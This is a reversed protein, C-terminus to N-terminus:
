NEEDTRDPHRGQAGAQTSLDPNGESRFDVSQVDHGGKTIKYAIAGETSVWFHIHLGGRTIIKRLLTRGSREEAVIDVVGDRLLAAVMEPTCLAEDPMGMGHLARFYEEPSLDSAGPDESSGPFRECKGDCRVCPLDQEGWLARGLLDKTRIADGVVNVASGCKRCVTNM